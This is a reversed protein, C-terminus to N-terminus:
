LPFVGLADRVERLTERTAADAKRTGDRLADVVEDPRDALARRRERIPTLLRELVERLRAKVVGDGLGGRRYREKLTAVGQTDPDFADLYAFVVNGEVKGPDSVKAHGPDTFMMHVAKAVEDPTAALPIANGMSKSAKGKGDIGPLRGAGPVIADSEPLVRRGAIRNVKGVVENSMEIMPIQDAGAPVLTAKFATIDAAQSVPYALFGVPMDREYGRLCLEERITPNRELRGVSVLNQYLMTLEALAPLASQLCIATLEPDIGVALYDTVVALVNDKVRVGREGNDTLAQMDAVIVYQTHDRQLRVRNALSGALHGLHLPGTPRDGTLVVPPFANEPDRM